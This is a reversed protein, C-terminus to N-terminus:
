EKFIFETRRVKGAAKDIDLGMQYPRNKVVVAVDGMLVPAALNYNSDFTSRQTGSYGPKFIVYGTPNIGLWDPYIKAPAGFQTEAFYCHKPLQYEGGPTLADFAADFAKNKDTDRYIKMIGRNITTDNSFVVFFMIGEKAASERADAVAQVVTDAATRVEQGRFMENFLAVAATMLILIIVIVVILEILTFGRRSM